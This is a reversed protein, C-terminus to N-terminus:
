SLADITAQVDEIKFPKSLVASVDKDTEGAHTDGTLLVVPLDPFRIRLAAALERGSMDPMGQDTIVLDFKVRATNELADPGSQAQQM